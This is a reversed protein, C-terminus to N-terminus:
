VGRCRFNIEVESFRSTVRPFLFFLGRVTNIYLLVFEFNFPLWACPTQNIFGDTVTGNCVICLMITNEYMGDDDDIWCLSSARGIVISNNNTANELTLVVVFVEPAENIEDNFIAVPVPINNVQNGFEDAPFTVTTVNTSFDQRDPPYAIYFNLINLQIIITYLRMVNSDHVLSCFM